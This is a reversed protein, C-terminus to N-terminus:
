ETYPYLPTLKKETRYAHWLELLTAPQFGRTRNQAGIRFLYAFQKMLTRYAEFISTNRDWIHTAEGGAGNIEVIKFCRGKQFERYDSFRVDFRGFYFEPIEHSISDFTSAMEDTIYANGNRFITGRSHSGTFALRYNQGEPIVTDLRKQHRKMYVHKILGARRDDEILKRLTSNGDGTVYPFYKFTLSFIFGHAQTPLRIYFVGAEGEYPILEQVLVRGGPPFSELYTLLEATDRVIQVGVGRCGIDPKVVAPYAINQKRMLAEAYESDTKANAGHQGRTFGAFRAILDASTGGVQSLIMEKSEGVLGGLPFLPNAVSPLTASGYRISLMVWQICIPIYFLKPPWFEYFSLPPGSTDFPPMGQHMPKDPYTPTIANKTIRDKQPVACDQAGNM